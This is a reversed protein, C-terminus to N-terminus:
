HRGDSSERRKLVRSRIYATLDQLAQGSLARLEPEDISGNPSCRDFVGANTAFFWNRGPVTVKAGCDLDSNPTRLVHKGNASGKAASIVDIEVVIWGEDDGEGIRAATVEALLVYEASDFAEEVPM